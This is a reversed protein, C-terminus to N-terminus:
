LGRKRTSSLIILRLKEENKAKMFSSIFHHEKVINAITMLSRLYFNRQDASGALVFAMKVIEQPSFVIGQKARAVIIEFKNEGEIVIHPLALGEEVVTSSDEERKILLEKIKKVEIHLRSSLIESVL